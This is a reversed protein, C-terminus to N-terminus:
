LSDSVCRPQQSRTSGSKLLFGTRPNMPVRMLSTIIPQVLSTDDAVWQPVWVLSSLKRSLESWKNEVDSGMSGRVYRRTKGHGDRRCCILALLPDTELDAVM